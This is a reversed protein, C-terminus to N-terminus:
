HQSPASEGQLQDNGPGMAATEQRTQANGGGEAPRPGILGRLLHIAAEASVGSTAHQLDSEDIRDEAGGPGQGQNASPHQRPM